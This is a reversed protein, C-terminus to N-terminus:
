AALPSVVAARLVTTSAIAVASDNGGPCRESDVISPSLFFSSVSFYARDPEARDLPANRASHERPLRQVAEGRACGACGNAAVRALRVFCLTFV